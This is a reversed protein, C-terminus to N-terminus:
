IEYGYEEELIKKLRLRGRHYIVKASSESIDLLRAIEAHPLELFLRYLLVQSTPPSFQKLVVVIDYELHHEKPLFYGANKNIEQVKRLNKQKEEKRLFNYFVKQAISCLWTEVHCNGEFRHISKYARFFTEQTLDDAIHENGNCLRLLFRRVYLFTASYIEDFTNAM